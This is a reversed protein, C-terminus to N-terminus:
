YLSQISDRIAEKLEDLPESAGYPLKSVYHNHRRRTRGKLPTLVGSYVVVCIQGHWTKPNATWIGLIYPDLSDVAATDIVRDFIILAKAQDEIEKLRTDLEEESRVRVIVPHPHKGSSADTVASQILNFDADVDEIIFVHPSPAGLTDDTM